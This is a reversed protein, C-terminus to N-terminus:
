GVDKWQKAHAAMMLYWTFSKAQSQVSSTKKLAWTVAQSMVADRMAVVVLHGPVEAARTLDILAVANM